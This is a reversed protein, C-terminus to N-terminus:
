DGKEFLDIALLVAEKVIMKRFEEDRLFKEITLEKTYVKKGLVWKFSNPQRKLYELISKELESLKESLDM